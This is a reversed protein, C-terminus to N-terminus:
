AQTYTSRASLRSDEIDSLLHAAAAAAHPESLSRGALAHSDRSRYGTNDAGYTHQIFLSYADCGLSYVDWSHSSYTSGEPWRSRTVPGRRLRAASTHVTGDHMSSRELHIHFTRTRGTTKFPSLAGVTRKDRTRPLRAARSYLAGGYIGQTMREATHLMHYQAVWM